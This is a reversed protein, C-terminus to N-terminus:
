FFYKTCIKITGYQIYKDIFYIEGNLNKHLNFHKVYETYFENEDICKIPKKSLEYTAYGILYYNLYDILKLNSYIITYGILFKYFDNFLRDYNKYKYHPEIYIKLNKSIRVYVDHYGYIMPLYKRGKEIRYMTGGFWMLFNEDFSEIVVFGYNNLFIMDNCDINKILNEDICSIELQIWNEFDCPMLNTDFNILFKNNFEKEHTFHLNNDLLTEIFEPLDNQINTESM